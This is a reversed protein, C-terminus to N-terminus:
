REAPGRVVLQELVDNALLELHGGLEGTIGYGTEAAYAM